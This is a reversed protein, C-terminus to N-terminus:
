RQTQRVRRSLNAFQRQQMVWHGAEGVLLEGLRGLWFPRIVRYGSVVMRTGGDPADRLEVAWLYDLGVAPLPTTPDCARGRGDLRARLVLAHPADCHAVVFSTRGSPTMAIRDGVAIHQWEPHIVRASPRGANDILDWSYWGARGCGMQAIWPWVEAPSAPLTTAMTASRMGGSIIDAGVFPADCEQATAGWRLLRPRLALLYAVAGAALVVSSRLRHLSM